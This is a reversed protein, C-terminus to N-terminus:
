KIPVVKEVNIEKSRKEISRQLKNRCNDQEEKKKAIKQM